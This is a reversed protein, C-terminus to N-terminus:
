GASFWAATSRSLFFPLDAYLFFLAVAPVTFRRLASLGTFMLLNTSVVLFLLRAGPSVGFLDIWRLGYIVTGVALLANALRLWVLDLVPFLNLHLLKGFVLYYLNPQGEIAGLSWTAPGDAPIWLAKAFVEVLGFHTLEDPPVEPSIGIAFICLRAAFYVLLARTLVTWIM